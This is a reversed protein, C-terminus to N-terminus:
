QRVAHARPELGRSRQLDRDLGRRQRTAGVGVLEWDIVALLRATSALLLPEGVPLRRPLHRREIDAPYAISCSSGFRPCPACGSPSRWRPCSATGASSTTTSRADARRPLRRPALRRPPDRRAGDDGAAGHGLTARSRASRALSQGRLAMVSGELKPVMFYPCGFWQPDDGSWKVSCHPVSTGDLANLAAVQRLVDATGVLRVNPPPLRMFWSEESGAGRVTFLYSFGAHGPGKELATVEAAPDDYM